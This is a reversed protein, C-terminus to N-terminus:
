AAETELLRRMAARVADRAFPKAIVDDAGLAYSKRRALAGGETLMVTKVGALKPDLRIEQCIEFGGAKPMMSDIMVIDPTTESLAQRAAANDAVRQIVVGDGEMLFQLALAISDEQEVLLVTKAM